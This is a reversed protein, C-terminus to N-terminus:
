ACNVTQDVACECKPLSDGTCDTANGVCFSSDCGCSTSIVDLSSLKVFELEPKEFKNM